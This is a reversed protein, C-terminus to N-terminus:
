PVPCLHLAHRIYCNYDGDIAEFINDPCVRSPTQFSTSVVWRACGCACRTTGPDLGALVDVRPMPLFLRFWSAGRSTPSGDDDRGASASTRKSRQRCRLNPVSLPSASAQLLAASVFSPSPMGTTGRCDRGIRQFLGEDRYDRSARKKTRPPSGNQCLWRLPGKWSQCSLSPTSFSFTSAVSRSGLIRSPQDAGGFGPCGAREGRCLGRDRRRPRIDGM